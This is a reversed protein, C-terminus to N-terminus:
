IFHISEKFFLSCLIFCSVKMQQPFLIQILFRGVFCPNLGSVRTQIFLRFFWCFEGFKCVLPSFQPTVESFASFADSLM